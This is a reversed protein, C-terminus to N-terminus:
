NNVQEQRLRGRFHLSRLAQCLAQCVAPAPFVSDQGREVLVRVEGWGPIFLTVWNLEPESNPLPHQVQFAPICLEAWDPGCKGYSGWGLLIPMDERGSGLGGSSDTDQRMIADSHLYSQWHSYILIRM